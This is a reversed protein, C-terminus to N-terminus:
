QCQQCVLSLIVFLDDLGLKRPRGSLVSVTRLIVALTAIVLMAVVLSISSGHANDDMDTQEYVVM